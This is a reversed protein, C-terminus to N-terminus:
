LGLTKMAREYAAEESDDPRRDIVRCELTLYVDAGIMREDYEVKTRYVMAEVGAEKLEENLKELTMPLQAPTKM